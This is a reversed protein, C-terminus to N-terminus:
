FNVSMRLAVGRRTALPTIQLRTSGGPAEYVTKRGRVLADIGVGIGAGLVAGPFMSAVNDRCTEWPEMLSCLYLGAGIGAGAGILAGNLLSDSRRARVRRIEATTFRRVGEGVTATVTGGSFNGIRMKQEVGGSDTIWVTAGPALAIVLRPDAEAPSQAAVSQVPVFVLTAAVAARRLWTTARNSRM